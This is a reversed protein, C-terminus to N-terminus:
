VTRAHYQPDYHHSAIQCSARATQQDVPNEGITYLTIQSMSPHKQKKLREHHPSHRQPYDSDVNM